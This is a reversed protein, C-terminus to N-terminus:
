SVLAPLLVEFIAGKGSKSHVIIHGGNQKVIGYVTPLGLGTGKGPEKTTFFPEFMHTKVDETLGTGTDAVALRVYDGPTIDTPYGTTREGIQINSTEIRLTGGQPMADRANTVLNTVVRRIQRPDAYVFKLSPGPMIEWQIGEGILSRIIEEEAAIINSIDVPEPYYPTRHGITLLQQTLDACKAAATEIAALSDYHPDATRVEQLLKATYGQVV